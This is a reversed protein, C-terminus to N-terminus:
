TGKINPKGCYPSRSCMMQKATGNIMTTENIPCVSCATTLSRSLTNRSKTNEDTTNTKKVPAEHGRKRM